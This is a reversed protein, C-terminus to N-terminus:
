DHSRNDMQHVLRSLVATRTLLGAVQRNDVVPLLRRKNDLMRKAASVLDTTPSVSCVDITMQHSVMEGVQEFYGGMLTGRMCDAESLIGVLKGEADVVPAASLQKDLLKGLAVIVGIGADITVPQADMLDSVQLSNIAM